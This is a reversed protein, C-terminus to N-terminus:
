HLSDVPAYLKTARGKVRIDYYGFMNNADVFIVTGARLTIIEHENIFQKCAEEDNDKRLKEWNMVDLISATVNFDNPLTMMGAHALPAITLGAIATLILAITKM